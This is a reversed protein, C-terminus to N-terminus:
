GAARLAVALDQSIDAIGRDAVETVYPMTVFGHIMGLYRRSTVNVGAERL